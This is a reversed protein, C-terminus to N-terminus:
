KWKLIGGQLDYVKEFGMSVLKRAAKLSRNGSRCYLYVPKNRDMKEFAKEFDAGRFYDINVARAIHGGRFERPTRVDVLQVDNNNVAKKYEEVGLIEIKESYEPKPGLLKNIISM